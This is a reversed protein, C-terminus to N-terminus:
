QALHHGPPMTLIQDKERVILCRLHICPCHIPLLPYLTCVFKKVSGKSKHCFKIKKNWQLRQDHNESQQKYDKWTTEHKKLREVRRDWEYEEDAFYTSFGIGQSAPKENEFMCTRRPGVPIKNFETLIDM